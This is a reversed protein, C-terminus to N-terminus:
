LLAPSIIILMEYLLVRHSLYLGFVRVTPLYFLGKFEQGVLLKPDLNIPCAISKMDITFFCKLLSLCGDLSHTLNNLAPSLLNGLSNSKFHALRDNLSFILDFFDNTEAM